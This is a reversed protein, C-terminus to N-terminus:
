DEEKEEYKERHKKEKKDIEEDELDEIKQKTLNPDENLTVYSPEKEVPTEEVLISEPQIPTKEIEDTVVPEKSATSEQITNALAPDVKITPGGNIITLLSATAALLGSFAGVIAAMGQIPKNESM